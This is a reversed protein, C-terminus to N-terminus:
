GRGPRRAPRGADAEGAYGDVLDRLEGIPVPKRLVPAAAILESEAFCVPVHGTQFAFPTGSARLKEAIPLSTEEEALNVDLLALDPPDGAMAALAADVSPHPGNPVHGWDELLLVLDTGILPDDEVVLIKM